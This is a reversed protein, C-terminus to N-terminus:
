VRHCLREREREIYTKRQTIYEYLQKYTSKLDEIRPNKYIHM